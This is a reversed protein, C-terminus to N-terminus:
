CFLNEFVKQNFFSTPGGKKKKKKKLKFFSNEKRFYLGLGLFRFTNEVMQLIIWICSIIFFFFVSSSSHLYAIHNVYRFRLSSTTAESPLLLSGLHM